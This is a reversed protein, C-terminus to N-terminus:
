PAREDLIQLELSQSLKVWDGLLGAKPNSQTHQSGKLNWTSWAGSCFDRSPRRRRRVKTVWIMHLGREIFTSCLGQVLFWPGFFVYARSCCQRSLINHAQVSATTLSLWGKGEKKGQFLVKGHVSNISVCSLTKLVKWVKGAEDSWMSVKVSWYM